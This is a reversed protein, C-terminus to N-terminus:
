DPLCFSFFTKKPRIQLLMYHGVTPMEGDLDKDIPMRSNSEDTPIEGDFDRDIPMRSNSEDTPMEGDLDRIWVARLGQVRIPKNQQKGSRLNILFTKAPAM